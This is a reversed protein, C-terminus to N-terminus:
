FSYGVQVGAAIASNDAFDARATDSTEPQAEGFVTYRIGGGISLAETLQYEAGIGVSVNGNTPSLPSVLPDGAGEYGISFSASLDDTFRRGVGLSFATGDDIDTLSTGINGAFFDPAVITKSYRAHRIQGFLLTDPAIGTQFDINVADPTEVETPSGPNVVAGNFTEVSNFEHTISSFYTVALRLAIDPREYAAGVLYGVGTSTELAVDYTIGGYALGSLTIDGSLQEGRVGAHISFNDSFEYRGIATLAYSDLRAETGGLMTAAPDGPYLVDVGFPQDFILAASIQPTMQIKLSAGLQSFGDAVGDYAAGGFAPLDAGTINPTVYGFSLEVANGDSFIAGINQNSRDLGVAGAQGAMALLAAGSVALIRM